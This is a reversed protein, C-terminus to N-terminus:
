SALRDRADEVLPDIEVAPGARRNLARALVYGVGAATLAGALAWVEADLGLTQTLVPGLLLGALPLLYVRGAAGLLLGDSVRLIVTQGVSVQTGGTGAQIEFAQQAGRGEGLLRFACACGPGCNRSSASALCRLRLRSGEM